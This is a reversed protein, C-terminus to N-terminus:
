ACLPFVKADHANVAQITVDAHGRNRPTQQSFSYTVNGDSGTASTGTSFQGEAASLVTRGTCDTIILNVPDNPVSTQFTISDCLSGGSCAVWGGAPAYGSVTITVSGGGGCNNQCPTETPKPTATPAATATPVETASTPAPPAPPLTGPTWPPITETPIGAFGKLTGTDQSQPGSGGGGGGALGSGAFVSNAMTSAIGACSCLAVIVVLGVVGSAAARFQRDIEWRHRFRNVLEDLFSVPPM